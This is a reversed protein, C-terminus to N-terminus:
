EYKGCRIYNNIKKYLSDPSLFLKDAIVAISEGAIFHAHFIDQLQKDSILVVAERIKHLRYNIVKYEWELSKLAAKLKVTETEVGIIFDAIKDRKKNGSPLGTLVPTISMEYKQLEALETKIEGIQNFLETSQAVLFTYQSLEHRNILSKIM